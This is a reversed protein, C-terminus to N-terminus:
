LFHEHHAKNNSKNGCINTTINSNKNNMYKNKIIMVKMMFIITIILENIMIM